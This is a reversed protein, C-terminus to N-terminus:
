GDMLTILDPPHDPQATPYMRTLWDIFCFIVFLEIMICFRSFDMVFIFIVSVLTRDTPPSPPATSSIISIQGFSPSISIESLDPSNEDSRAVLSM